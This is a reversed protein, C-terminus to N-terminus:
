RHLGRRGTLPPGESFSRDAGECGIIHCGPFVPLPLILVPPLPAEAPLCSICIVVDCSRKATATEISVFIHAGCVSQSRARVASDSSLRVALSSPPAPQRQRMGAMSRAHSAPIPITGIQLRAQMLQLHTQKSRRSVPQLIRRLGERLVACMGQWRSLAGPWVCVLQVNVCRPPLQVCPAPATRAVSNPKTIGANIGSGFQVSCARVGTCCAGKNGERVQQGVHEGPATPWRAPRADAPPRMLEWPFETARM